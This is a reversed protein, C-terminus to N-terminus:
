QKLQSNLSDLEVLKSQLESVTNSLKETDERSSSLKKELELRETELHQVKM